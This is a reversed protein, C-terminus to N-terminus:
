DGVSARARGFGEWNMWRGSSPRPGWNAARKAPRRFSKSKRQSRMAPRERERSEEVDFCKERVALVPERRSRNMAIVSAAARSIEWEEWVRNDATSCRCHLLVEVRVSDVKEDPPEDTRGRGGAPRGLKLGLTGLGVVQAVFM